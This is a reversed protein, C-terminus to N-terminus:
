QVLSDAHRGGKEDLVSVRGRARERRAGSANASALPLERQVEDDMAASPEVRVKLIAPDDDVLVADGPHGVRGDRTPV